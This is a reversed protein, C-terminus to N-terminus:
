ETSSDKESEVEIVNNDKIGKVGINLIPQLGVVGNHEVRSEKKWGMQRETIHKIMAENGDLAMQYSVTAIDGQLKRRVAPLDVHKLLDRKSVGFHEAIKDQTYKGSLYMGVAETAIQSWNLGDSWVRNALMAKFGDIGQLTYAFKEEVSLESEDPIKLYPSIGPVGNKFAQKWEAGCNTCKFVPTEDMLYAVHGPRNCERCTEVKDLLHKPVEFNRM